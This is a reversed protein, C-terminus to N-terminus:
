QGGKCIGTVEKIVGNNFLKKIAKENNKLAPYMYPQAKQGTTYIWKEEKEDWYCWGSDRYTLSVGEIDYPYTGNGKIGTGFEVYMAYELNTYVRGIIQNPKKDVDMHISEALTGGGGRKNTPALSKANAHVIKVADNMSKNLDMDVLDNLKRTLRDINKIKLTAM